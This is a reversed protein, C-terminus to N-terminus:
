FGASLEVFLTFALKNSIPFEEYFDKDLEKDGYQWPVAM